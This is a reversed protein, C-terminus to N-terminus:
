NAGEQACHIAYDAHERTQVDDDHAPDILSHPTLGPWYEDLRMVHQMPFTCRCGGSLIVDVTMQTRSIFSAPTDSALKLRRPSGGYHRTIIITDGPKIDETYAM